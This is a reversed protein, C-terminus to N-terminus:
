LKGEQFRKIEKVTLPGCEGDADLDAGLENLAAQLATVAWGTSGNKVLPMRSALAAWTQEGCEGDVLLGTDEDDPVDAVVSWNPVGYGAISSDGAYYTRKAVSDSTNGEVTTITQGSVDVVIGTHNIGGSVYFFIQDGKRPNMSWANHNKYLSSFASCAPSGGFTMDTGDDYGFANIFLWNVFM